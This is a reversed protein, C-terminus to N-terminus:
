EWRRVAEFLLLRIVLEKDGESIDLVADALARMTEPNLNGTPALGREEQFAVLAAVSRQDWESTGYSVDYGLSALLTKVVLREPDTLKGDGPAPEVLRIQEPETVEIQPKGRYTQIKGTVCVERGDFMREPPREFKGRNQNWIVVTFVQEPYPKDLNLFTPGGKVSGIHSASMVRGCVTATKGVYAMAESAPVEPVADASASAVFLGLALVAVAAPVIPVGARLAFRSALM